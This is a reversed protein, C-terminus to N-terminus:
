VGARPATALEERCVDGAVDVSLSAEGNGDRRSRLQEHSPFHPRAERDALVSISGLDQLENLRVERAHTDARIAAVLRELPFRPSEFIEELANKGVELPIRQKDPLRRSKSRNATMQRTM